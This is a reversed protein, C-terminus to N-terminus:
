RPYFVEAMVRASFNALRDRLSCPKGGLEGGTTSTCSPSVMSHGAKASAAISVVKAVSVLSSKM